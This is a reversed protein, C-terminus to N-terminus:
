IYIYIYVYGFIHSDFVVAAVFSVVCCYATRQPPPLPPIPLVVGVPIFSEVLDGDSKNGLVLHFSFVFVAAHICKHLDYSRM